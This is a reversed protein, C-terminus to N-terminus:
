EHYEFFEADPGYPDYLSDEADWEEPPDDDGQDLQDFHAAAEALDEPTPYYAAHPTDIQSEPRDMYHDM